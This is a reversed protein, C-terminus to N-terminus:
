TLGGEEVRVIIGDGDHFSIENGIVYKRTDDVILYGKMGDTILKALYGHNDIDMGTNFAFSIKVPRDFKEKPIKQAMMEAYVLMHWYEADKQRQKWHRGAYIKNLSYDGLKNQRITFTETRM